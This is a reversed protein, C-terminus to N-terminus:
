VAKMRGVVEAILEDPYRVMGEKGGGIDKERASWRREGIETNPRCSPLLKGLGEPKM